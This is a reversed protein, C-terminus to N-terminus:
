AVLKLHHTRKKTRGMLVATTVLGLLVLLSPLSPLRSTPLKIGSATDVPYGFASQCAPCLGEHTPLVKTACQSCIQIQVQIM